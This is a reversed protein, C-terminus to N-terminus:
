LQTLFHAAKTKLEKSAKLAHKDGNALGQAVVELVEDKIARRIIDRQLQAMTGFYRSVLGPSINAAKAVLERTVKRYGRGKAIIMAADLISEKRLAPNARRKSVTTPATDVGVGEARLEEVFEAFTGGMIHPFSGDPIGARECLESRSLNILGFERVMKIAIQKINEKSM